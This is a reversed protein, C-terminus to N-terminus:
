QALQKATGRVADDLSAAGEVYPGWQSEITTRYRSWSRDFLGTAYLYPSYDIGRKQLSQRVAAGTVYFQVVHWLGDHERRRDALARDLREQIPLILEHSVEHFVIEVALWGANSAHDESSMTVHTPGLTTFAGVGGAWVVDVRVPQTFWKVDYLKELRPVVDPAIDRVGPTIAAIWERNRRDHAAWFRRLYIPLTEKLIQRLGDPIAASQLDGAVLALKLPTMGQGSRLHREALEKDYYAVAADWAAREADSFPAEFLPRRDIVPTGPVPAGRPRKALAAAHLAHHLNLLPDSHFRLRAVEVVFSDQRPPPAQTSLAVAVCTLVAALIPTAM